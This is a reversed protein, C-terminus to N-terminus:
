EQKLIFGMGFRTHILREANVVEMKKRIYNVYVNVINTGVDFTVEWVKELIEEKSLTKEPNRMFYELLRYEKATLDLNVGGRSITKTQPDLLLDAYEIVTEVPEVVSSRKTVAYIRAELEDMKFPKSLYDDAGLKLGKVVDTTQGLASLIIIPRYTKMKRVEACVEWGTIDPLLIDLLLLDFDGTAMYSLASKGDSFHITSFGRSELGRILFRAINEEDECIVIKM